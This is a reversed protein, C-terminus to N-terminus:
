GRREDDHVLGCSDVPLVANKGLRNDANESSRSWDNITRHASNRNEPTGGSTKLPVGSAVLSSSQLMSCGALVLIGLARILCGMIFLPPPRCSHGRSDNDRSKRGPWGFDRRQRTEVILGAMGGRLHRRDGIFEDEGKLMGPLLRNYFFIKSVPVQPRM